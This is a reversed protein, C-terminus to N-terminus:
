PIEVTIKGQGSTSVFFRLATNEKKYFENTFIRGNKKLGPANVVTAEDAAEVYIGIDSPLKLTIQGDENKIRAYLSDAFPKMFNLMMTGKDLDIKLRRVAIQRLDLEARGEGFSINFDIPLQHSLVLQWANLQEQKPFQGISPFYKEEIKLYGSEKIEEYSLNVRRTPLFYHFKGVMLNNAGGSLNINNKQSYISIEVDKAKKADIVQIEEPANINGPSCGAGLFLVAITLFTKFM